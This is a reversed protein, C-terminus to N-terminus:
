HIIQSKKLVFIADSLVYYNYVADGESIYPLKAVKEVEFGEKEFAVKVLSNVYEEWNSGRVELIEEPAKRSSGSEVFPKFPLVVAFLVRGNDELLDRIQKIVTIPKSCRDLVNCCCIVDFKQKQILLDALDATPIVNFGKEKLRSCMLSSAETVFVESFLPAYQLTVNGDGAGIDLLRGM